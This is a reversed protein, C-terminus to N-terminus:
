ALVTGVVVRDEDDPLFRVVTGSFFSDTAIGDWGALDTRMFESLSYLRGRYRFFTVGDEGADIARWDLYDFQERERETLEYADILLRPVNNTIIRPASGVVYYPLATRGGGIDIFEM